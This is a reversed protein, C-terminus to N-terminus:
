PWIVWVVALVLVIIPAKVFWNAKIFIYYGNYLTMVFSIALLIALILNNYTYFYIVQLLSAPKNINFVPYYYFSTQDGLRSIAARKKEPSNFTFFSIANNKQLNKVEPDYFRREYAQYYIKSDDVLRITLYTKKQVDVKVSAIRGRVMQRNLFSYVSSFLIVILMISFLLSGWFLPKDAKWQDYTSIPVSDDM